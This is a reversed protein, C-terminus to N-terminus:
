ETIKLSVWKNNKLKELPIGKKGDQWNVVVNHEYGLDVFVRGDIIWGRGQIVKEASTFRNGVQLDETLVFDIVDWDKFEKYKGKIKASVFKTATEFFAPAVTKQNGIEEKTLEKVQLEKPYHGKKNDVDMKLSSFAADDTDLGSPSKNIVPTNKSNFLNYGFDSIYLEPYEWLEKVAIIKYVYNATEENLRMQFYDNGQNRIAKRMCGPGCNYAAATLVWSYVKFKAAIENYYDALIRCATYTSKYIDSREDNYPTVKLGYEMATEPMLQWFGAAGKSSVVNKFGSEVIALYKFDEPLGTARMYKEVISFYKNANRRLEPLNVYPIQKRIVNMLKKAVFDNDVPIKEGCFIIDHTIKPVCICPNAFLFSFLFIGGIKKISLNHHSKISSKVAKEM